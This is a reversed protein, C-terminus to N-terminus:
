RVFIKATVDGTAIGFNLINGGLIGGATQLESLLRSNAMLVASVATQATPVINDVVASGTSLLNLKQESLLNSLDSNEPISPLASRQVTLFDQSIKQADLTSSQAAANLGLHTHIHMHMHTHTHTRTHTHTYTLTHKHARVFHQLLPESSEFYIFIM